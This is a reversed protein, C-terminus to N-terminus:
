VKAPDDLGNEDLFKHVETLLMDFEICFEKMSAMVAQDDGGKAGVNEFFTDRGPVLKLVVTFTGTVIWGHYQQLTSYYTESAAESLTVARDRELRSLLAIIFQMARCFFLRFLPIYSCWFEKLIYSHAVIGLMVELGFFLVSLIPFTLGFSVKQALPPWKYM